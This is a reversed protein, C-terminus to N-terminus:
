FYGVFYGKVVRLSIKVKIVYVYVVLGFRRLYKIGLKAGLWLEESLKYDIVLSSFRNILYVVIFVAEVWFREEMGSELFM